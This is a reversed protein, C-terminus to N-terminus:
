APLALTNRNCSREYIIWRDNERVLGGSIEVCLSTVLDHLDKLVQVPFPAGDDHDRVIRLDSRV